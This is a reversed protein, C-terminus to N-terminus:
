CVWGFLSTKSGREARSALAGPPPVYICGLVVRCKATQSYQLADSSLAPYTTVGPRANVLLVFIDVPPPVGKAEVIIFERGSDIRLTLYDPDFMAKKFLRTDEETGAASVVAIRLAQQKPLIKPPTKGDDVVLKQAIGKAFERLKEPVDRIRQYEDYIFGDSAAQKQIAPNTIVADPDQDPDPFSSLPLPPPPPPLSQSQSRSQSSPPPPPPPPPPPLMSISLNAALSAVKTQVPAPASMPPPPPPPLSLPIDASVSSVSVSVPVPCHGPLCTVVMKHKAAHFVARGQVVPDFSTDNSSVLVLLVRIDTDRPDTGHVLEIGSAASKGFFRDKFVAADSATLNSPTPMHVAIKVRKPPKTKKELSSLEAFYTGSERLTAATDTAPDFETYLYGLEKARAALHPARHANEHASQTSNSSM